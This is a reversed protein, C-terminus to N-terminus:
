KIGLSALHTGIQLEEEPTVSEEYAQWREASWIELRRQLGLVLADKEIGAYRRHEATLVIRGHDDVPCEQGGALFVRQFKQIYPDQSSQRAIDDEIRTWEILPLAWLCRQWTTVVLTKDYQKELIERFKAPVSVRGKVDVTHSFRGRFM